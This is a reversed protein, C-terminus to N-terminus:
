LLFACIHSDVFVSNQIASKTATPVLLWLVEGAIATPNTTAGFTRPDAETPQHKPFPAHCNAMVSALLRSTLRIHDPKAYKDNADKDKVIHM